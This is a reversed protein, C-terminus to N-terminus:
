HGTFTYMDFPLSLVHFSFCFINETKVQVVPRDKIEVPVSAALVGASQLACACAIIYVYKKM